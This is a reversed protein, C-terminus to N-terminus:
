KSGVHHKKVGPKRSIVTLNESSSTLGLIGGTVIVLAAAWFAVKEYKKYHYRNM